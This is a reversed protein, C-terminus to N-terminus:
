LDIPLGVRVLIGDIRSSPSRPGLGNAAGMSFGINNFDKLHLPTSTGVTACVNQEILLADIVYDWDRATAM